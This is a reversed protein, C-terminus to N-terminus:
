LIHACFRIKRAKIIRIQLWETESSVNHAKLWHITKKVDLLPFINNEYRIYKKKIMTYGYILIRGSGPDLTQFIIYKNKFFFLREVFILCDKSRKLKVSIYCKQLM